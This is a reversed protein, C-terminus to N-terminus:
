NRANKTVGSSNEADLAKTKAHMPMIISKLRMSITSCAESITENELTIAVSCSNCHWGQV